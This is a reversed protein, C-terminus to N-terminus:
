EGEVLSLHPPLEPVENPPQSAGKFSIVIADQGDDSIGSEAGPMAVHQAFLENKVGAVQKISSALLSPSILGVSERLNLLALLIFQNGLRVIAQPDGSVLDPYHKRAAKSLRKVEADELM